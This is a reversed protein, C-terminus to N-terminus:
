IGSWQRVCFLRYGSQKLAMVFCFGPDEVAVPQNNKLELAM